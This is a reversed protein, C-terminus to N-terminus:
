NTGKKKKKEEFLNQQCSSLSDHFQRTLRTEDTKDDFWIERSFFFFFFVNQLGQRTGYRCIRDNDYWWCSLASLRFENVSLACSARSTIKWGHVRIKDTVEFFAGSLNFADVLQLCCCRRRAPFGVNALKLFRESLAIETAQKVLSRWLFQTSSYRRVDDLSEKELPFARMIARSSLILKALRLFTGTNWAFANRLTASQHFYRRRFCHFGAIYYPDSSRKSLLSFRKM